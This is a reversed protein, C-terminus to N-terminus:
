RTQFLLPSGLDLRPLQLLLNRGYLGLVPLFLRARRRTTDIATTRHWLRRDIFQGLARRLPARKLSLYSAHGGRTDFDITGAGFAPIM